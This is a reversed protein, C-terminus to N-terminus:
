QWLTKVVVRLGDGGFKGLEQIIRGVMLSGMAALEIHLASVREAEQHQPQPVARLVLLTAAFPVGKLLDNRLLLHMARELLAWSGALSGIVQMLWLEIWLHSMIDSEDVQLRRDQPPPSSKENPIDHNTLPLIRM